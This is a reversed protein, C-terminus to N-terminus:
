IAAALTKLRDPNALLSRYVAINAEIVSELSFGSAVIERGRTGMAARLEPSELLQAIAGTLAEVDRPPVLLGNQGNRIIERCGPFDAGIIPRGSAAAEILIRPVGEGYYSPLCVIHSRAILGAIDNRWGLWEVDGADRWERIKTVPVASPHGYDPEGVLVFRAQTGRLRLARAASVFEVVGKEWLLRSAMLVVPLGHPEPEPTFVSLDVGSGNTLVAREGPVIGSTLFDDRDYPNQFIVRHNQHRFSCRLAVAIMSQLTRMKVSRATFAYGLGTLTSVAAPVGSVRASIGGYLTPKLSFHHVLTPRLKRYLRLLSILCRLEDLLRTSKRRMYFVHVPIGQSVIDKLGPEQPVAVHIDFGAERLKCALVMRYQLFDVVQNDVFLVRTVSGFRPPTPNDSATSITSAM